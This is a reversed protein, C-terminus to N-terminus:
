PGGTLVAIAYIWTPAFQRAVPEIRGGQVLFTRVTGELLFIM